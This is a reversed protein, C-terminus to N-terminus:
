DEMEWSRVRSSRHHKIFEQPTEFVTKTDPAVMPITKSRPWKAMNAMLVLAGRCMQGTEGAFWKSRWEPDDYDITPHCPLPEDRLISSIFGEPEARGLWGAIAKRRFPCSNCVSECVPRHAM